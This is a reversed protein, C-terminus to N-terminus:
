NKNPQKDRQQLFEKCIRALSRRDSIHKGLIKELKITQQNMKKLTKQYAPTILNM